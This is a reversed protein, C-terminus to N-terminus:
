FPIEEDEASHHGARFISVVNESVIPLPADDDDDDRRGLLMEVKEINRCLVLIGKAHINTKLVGSSGASKYNNLRGDIMLLDGLNIGGDAAALEETIVVSHYSSFFKGEDSREDVELVFRIHPEGNSEFEIPKRYVRGIMRVMNVAPTHMDVVPALYRLRM